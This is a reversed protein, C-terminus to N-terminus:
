GVGAARAWQAVTALHPAWSDWVGRVHAEIADATPGAAIAAELDLDM